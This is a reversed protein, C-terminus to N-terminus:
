LFLLTRFLFFSGDIIHLQPLLALLDDDYSRNQEQLHLTSEDGSRASDGGDDEKGERQEPSKFSLLHTVMSTPCAYLGGQGKQNLM